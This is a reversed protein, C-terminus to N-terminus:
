RDRQRETDRKRGREREEKRERPGPVCCLLVALYALYSSSGDICYLVVGVDCKTDRGAGRSTASRREANHKRYEAFQMRCETDHVRGTKVLDLRVLRSRSSGVPSSSVPPFPRVPAL